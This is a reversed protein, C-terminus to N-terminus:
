IKFKFPHCELKALIPNMITLGLVLNYFHNPHYHGNYPHLQWRFIGSKTVKQHYNMWLIAMKQNKWPVFQLDLVQELHPFSLPFYKTSQAQALVQEPLFSSINKQFFQLIIM